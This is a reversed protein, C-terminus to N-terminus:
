QIREENFYKVHIEPEISSHFKTKVLNKIRLRLEPLTEAQVCLHDGVAYGVFVGESVTSVHFVMKNTASHAAWKYIFRWHSMAGLIVFVHFIDHGGIYSPWINPWQLFDCLAGVSYFIGGLVLGKMSEGAYSKRFKYGTLAGMWGLGLFLSTILWQPFSTFYIAEIILGLLGIGWVTSLILWRWPGRFLIIHIPTFTGAILVWIAAHDLRQLVARADGTHALSHYVGSMSFLFILSFSYLSLAAIRIANGKGKKLLFFAAISFTIAALLHTWSSVPDNFGLVIINTM